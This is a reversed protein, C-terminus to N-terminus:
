RGMLRLRLPDPAVGQIEIKLLDRAAAYIASQHNTLNPLTKGRTKLEFDITKLKITVTKGQLFSHCLIYYFLM